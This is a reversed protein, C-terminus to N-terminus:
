QKKGDGTRLNVDAGREVLVPVLAGLNHLCTYHLVSFGRSDLANLESELDTLQGMVQMWMQELLDELERDGLKSLESDDLEGGGAGGGVGPQVLGGQASPSDGVNVSSVQQQAGGGIKPWAGGGGGDGAAAAAAAEATGVFGQVFAGSGAGGAPAESDAGSVRSGKIQDLREVIRIKCERGDCPLLSYGLSDEAPEAAAGAASSATAAAATQGLDASARRWAAGAHGRRLNGGVGGVGGARRNSGLSDRGAVKGGGADGSCVWSPTERERPTSSRPPPRRGQQNHLAGFPSSSSSAAMPSPLVAEMPSPSSSAAGAGAVEGWDRKRVGLGQGGAAALDEKTEHWTLRKAPTRPTGSRSITPAASSGSPSNASCRYEFMDGGQQRGRSGSDFAVSSASSTRRLGISSRSPVEVHIPVQGTGDVGPGPPVKCRLVTQSVMEAPVARDAFYVKPGPTGVEVDVPAALCILLKAGGPAYDWTPSFDVIKAIEVGAGAGGAGGAGALGRSASVHMVAGSPSPSPAPVGVGGGEHQLVGPSSNYATVAAGFNGAASTGGGGGGGYGQQQQQHQQHQHQQHQQHLSSWPSSLQLSGAPHFEGSSVGGASSGSGGNHVGLFYGPSSPTVGGGGSVSASRAHMNNNSAGGGGSITTRRAERRPPSGVLAPLMGMPSRNSHSPSIPRFPVDTIRLGQTSSPIPGTVKDDCEPSTNARRRMGGLSGNADYGGGGGIGGFRSGSSSGSGLASGGGGSGVRLLFGSPPTLEPHVSSSQSGSSHNGQSSVTLLDEGDVLFSRFLDHMDEDTNSGNAGPNTDGAGLGEFEALGVMEDDGFATPNLCAAAQQQQQQAGAMKKPDWLPLGSAPEPEARPTQPSSMDSRMPSIGETAERGRGGRGPGKRSSGNVNMAYMDSGGTGVWMNNRLTAARVDVPGGAGTVAGAGGGYRGDGGGGGGGGGGGRAGPLVKGVWGGTGGGGGLVGRAFQSSGEQKIGASPTRPPSSSSSPLQKQTQQQQKSKQQQQQQQNQRQQQQQQQQQQQRQKDAASPPASASTSAPVAAASVTAVAAAAAARAAAAAAAALDERRSERRSAPLFLNGDPPLQAGRGRWCEESTLPRAVGAAGFPSRRAFGRAEEDDLYHVLQDGWTVTQHSRGGGPGPVSPPELAYRRRWFCASGSGRSSYSNVAHRGNVKM